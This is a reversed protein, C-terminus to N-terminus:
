KKNETKKKLSKNDKHSEEPIVINKPKKDSPKPTGVNLHEYVPSIDLNSGDGSVVEISKKEEM